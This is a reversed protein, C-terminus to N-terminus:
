AAQFPPSHKPARYLVPWSVHTSSFPFPQRAISDVLDPPLWRSTIMGQRIALDIFPCEELTTLSYTASQDFISATARDTDEAPAAEGVTVVEHLHRHEASYVHPVMALHLSSFLPLLGIWLALSLALAGPLNKM